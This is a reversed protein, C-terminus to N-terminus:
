QQKPYKEQSNPINIASESVNDTIMSRKFLNVIYFLPAKDKKKTRFMLSTYYLKVYLHVFHFVFHPFFQSYNFFQLSKELQIALFFKNLLHLRSWDQRYAEFTERLLESVLSYCCYILEWGPKLGGRSAAPLRCDSVGGSRWLAASLFGILGLTSDPLGWTVRVSPQGDQLPQQRLDRNGESVRLWPILFSGVPRPPPRCLAFSGVLWKLKHQTLIKIERPYFQLCFPMKTSWSCFSHVTVLSNM